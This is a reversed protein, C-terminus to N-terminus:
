FTEGVSKRVWLATEDVKSLFPSHSSQISDVVVKGGDPNAQLRAEDAMNIILRQWEASIAKDDETVLFYTPVIKFGAFPVPTRYVIWAQPILLSAYHEAEKQPVDHYFLKVPGPEPNPVSIEIETKGDVPSPIYSLVITPPVIKGAWDFGSIGETVLLGSIVLLASIGNKFGAAKRSEKDLTEIAASGPMGSYSHTLVVVDTEPHAELETLVTAKIADVDEKIDGPPPRNLEAYHM